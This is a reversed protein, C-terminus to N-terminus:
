LILGWTVAEWGRFYFDPYGYQSWVAAAIATQMLGVCAGLCPGILAYRWMETIQREM